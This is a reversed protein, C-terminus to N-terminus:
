HRMGFLPAHVQGMSKSRINTTPAAFTPEREEPFLVLFATVLVAVVAALLVIRGRRLAM